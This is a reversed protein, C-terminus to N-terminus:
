RKNVVAIYKILLDVCCHRLVHNFLFLTLTTKGQHVKLKTKDEWLARVDLSLHNTEPFAKYSLLVDLKYCM